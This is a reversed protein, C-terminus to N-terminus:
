QYSSFIFWHLKAHSWGMIAMRGPSPNPSPWSPMGPNHFTCTGSGGIPVYFMIIVSPGAKTLHQPSGLIFAALIIYGETGNLCQDTILTLLTVLVMEWSHYFEAAQLESQLIKTAKSFFGWVSCFDLVTLQFM